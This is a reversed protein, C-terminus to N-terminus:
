GVRQQVADSLTRTSLAANGDWESARSRAPKNALHEVSGLEGKNDRPMMVMGRGVGPGALRDARQASENADPGNM